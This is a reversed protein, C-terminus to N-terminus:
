KRPLRRALFDEVLAAFEEPAQYPAFHAAKHIVVFESEPILAHAAHSLDPPLLIDHGGVVVLAPCTLSSLAPSVDTGIMGSAIAAYGAPDNHRFREYYRHYRADRPQSDFALEIAKPLLAEMGHQEVLAIRGKTREKSDLGLLPATDALVLARVHDRDAAAYASAVLSGIACGVPIVDALGLRQRLAVIDAAHDGVRWPREAVPSRGAGRLDCAVVRYQRSWQAGCEEWFVHSAGLPHLLLLAPADTPGSEVHFLPEAM